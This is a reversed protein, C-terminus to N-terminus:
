GANSIEKLVFICDECTVDSENSSALFPTIVRVDYPILTAMSWCLPYSDGDKLHILEGSPKLFELNKVGM